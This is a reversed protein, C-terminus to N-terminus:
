GDVVGKQSTLYDPGRRGQQQELCLANTYAEHFALLQCYVFGPRGDLFGRKVFYMWIFRILPRAPLRYWIRTKLARRREPWSGFFSGQRVVSRGAPSAMECAELRAYRLQRLMFAELGKLNEHLLPNELFGERGDLLVHEHVLREEFRALRRDFLRLQYDPYWWAHMLKRGLFINRRPIWYGSAEDRALAARIEDRLASTLYEDADLFLVWEADFPINDLGWNKQASYGSWRHAVVEAGAERALEVTRDTSGGDLVFIGGLDCASEIARVVHLEEDLTPIVVNLRRM